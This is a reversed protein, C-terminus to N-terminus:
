RRAGIVYVGRERNVISGDKVMRSLEVGPNTPRGVSELYDRIESTRATRNDQLYELILQRISKDHGDRGKRLQRSSQRKNRHVPKKSVPKHGNTTTGMFGFQKQLNSMAQQLEAQLETKRAEAQEITNDCQEIEATVEQVASLIKESIGETQTQEKTTPEHTQTTM